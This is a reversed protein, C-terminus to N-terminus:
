SLRAMVAQSLAKGEARGGAREQVLKMVQGMEKRSTAGVEAIAQEVMEAIQEETLAQPLYKQLVGIEAREKDALEARGAADFQQASDERQKIQKRIVAVAEADDLEGGAGHKEIAANKMASKAARLVALAVQDKARMADKMDNTIQENLNM